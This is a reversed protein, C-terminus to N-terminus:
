ELDPEDEGVNEDWLVFECGILYGGKTPTCHRVVAPIRPCDEDHWFLKVHLLTGVEIGQPALFAIGQQSANHLAVSIDLTRDDRTLAISLPWSRQYRRGSRRAPHVRHEGRQRATDVFRDITQQLVAVPETETSEIM